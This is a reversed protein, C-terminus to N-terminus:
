VTIKPSFRLHARVFFDVKRNFLDESVESRPHFGKTWGGDKHETKPVSTEVMCSEGLENTVFKAFAQKASTELSDCILKRDLPSGYRKISYNDFNQKRIDANEINVAYENTGLCSCDLSIEEIYGDAILKQEFDSCLKSYIVNSVDSLVETTFRETAQQKVTKASQQQSANATRAQRARDFLSM